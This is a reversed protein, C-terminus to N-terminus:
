KQFGWKQNPKGQVRSLFISAASGFFVSLFLVVSDEKQILKLVILVALIFGSVGISLAICRITSM